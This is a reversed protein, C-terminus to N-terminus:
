SGRDIKNDSGLVVAQFGFEKLMESVESPTLLYEKPIAPPLRGLSVYKGEGLPNYPLVEFRQLNKIQYSALERAIRTVNEANDTYGPVCPFRLIKPNNSQMLSRINKFVVSGEGALLYREYDEPCGFKIDIIFLDVYNTLNHVFDPDCYCCTEVATHIGSSKLARVLALTFAERLLPEGGSLTVGGGSVEYFTRDSEVERLLDEVDKIEGLITIAETPCTNVCKRCETLCRNGQLKGLEMRPDIGQPCVKICEECGKICQSDRFLLEQHFSLGEPNHCWPCRLSCGKFFVTTRIGFGDNLSFRKIAFVLGHQGNIDYM